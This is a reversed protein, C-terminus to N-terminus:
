AQFFQNIVMDGASGRRNDRYSRGAFRCREAVFLMAIDHHRRQLQGDASRRAFACVRRPQNRRLVDVALRAALPVVLAIHMVNQRFTFRGVAQQYHLDPGVFPTGTGVRAVLVVRIVRRLLGIQLLGVVMAEVRLLPEAHLADIGVVSRQILTHRDIVTVHHHHRLAVM